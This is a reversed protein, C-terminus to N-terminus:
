AENLQKKASQNVIAWNQSENKHSVKLSLLRRDRDNKNRQM